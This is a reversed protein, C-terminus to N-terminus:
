YIVLHKLQYIRVMAENDANEFFLYIFKFFIFCGEAHSPYVCSCGTMSPLQIKIMFNLTIM